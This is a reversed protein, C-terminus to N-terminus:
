WPCEKFIEWEKCLLERIELCFQMAEIVFEPTPLDGDGYRFSLFTLLDIEVEVDMNPHRKDYCHVIAFEEDYLIHAAVNGKEEILPIIIVEPIVFIECLVDGPM